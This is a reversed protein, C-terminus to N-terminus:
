LLSVSKTKTTFDETAMDTYRILVHGVHASDRAIPIVGDEWQNCHTSFPPVAPRWAGRQYTLVYYDSWCSTFWQPLIGLYDRRTPGLHSFATLEGGIAQNLAYPRLATNSSTVYSVCPGVCNEGTSDLAPPVLWVYEPTGDGDFDGRIADKPIAVRSAPPAVLRPVLPATAQRSAPQYECGASLGLVCSLLVACKMPAFIFQARYM